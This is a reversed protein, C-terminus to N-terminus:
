SKGRLWDALPRWLETEAQRSVVMGIHGARPKLVRAAPLAHALALASAPPVIRDDTPIALFAPGTWQGPNVAAGGVLWAGRAPLNRGYWGILCEEAVPAALPVGDNLWDELAVFDAAQQSEPDLASFAAFKRYALLPDLALFLAQLADVALGGTPAMLAQLAPLAAEITRAWPAREAHFDWPTALLALAKVSKPRALAAALALNGGMCYGVLPVPGGSMAVAHELAPVLRGLIYDSLSFRAEAPGPQGWDILYPRMGAASLYRMLSRKRSLDLVYARNVLSPAFLVPPGDGGYDFLRTSGQAWAVPPEAVDRRYPHARYREIGAAFAAFRSQAERALAATLAENPAAALAPSLARGAAALGNKWALSGSRALPLAAFSTM